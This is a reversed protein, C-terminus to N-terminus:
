VRLILYFKRYQSQFLAPGELPLHIGNILSLNITSILMRQSSLDTIQCMYDIAQKEFRQASLVTDLLILSKQM